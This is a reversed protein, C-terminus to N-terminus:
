KELDLTEMTNKEPTNGFELIKPLIQNSYIDAVQALKTQIFDKNDGKYNELPFFEFIPEKTSFISHPYINITSKIQPFLKNTSHDTNKFLSEVIFQPMQNNENDLYEIKYFTSNQTSLENDNINEDKILLYTANIHQRSSIGNNIITSNISLLTNDNIFKSGTMYFFVLDENPLVEIEINIPKFDKTKFDNVIYNHQENWIKFDKEITQGSQKKIISANLYDWFNM